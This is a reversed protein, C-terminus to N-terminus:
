NSPINSRETMVLQGVDKYVTESTQKIDTKLQVPGELGLATNFTALHYWNQQSSKSTSCYVKLKQMEM